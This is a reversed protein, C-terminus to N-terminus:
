IMVFDLNWSTSKIDHHLWISYSLSENRGVHWVILWVYISPKTCSQLLEMALAISNSCDQVLGDIDYNLWSPHCLLVEWMTDVHVEIFISSLQMNYFSLFYMSWNDEDHCIYSSLGQWCVSLFRVCSHVSQTGPQLESGYPCCYGKPTQQYIKFNLCVSIPIAEQWM